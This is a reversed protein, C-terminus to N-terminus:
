PLFLCLFTPLSTLLMTSGYFLRFYFILMPASLAQSNKHATGTDGKSCKNEYPLIM